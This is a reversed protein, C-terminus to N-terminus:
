VNCCNIYFDELKKSVEKIDFGAKIMEQSMDKREHEESYELVKNAWITASDKLSMQEVLSTICIENSIVDSIICPLGSAQAELVAGPLGEYISPFLFIDAAQLLDPVDNRSGLFLVDDIIELKKVKQRISEKNGGGVCVLKANKQKKKVLNFIDILFDHNKAYTFNGVHMIVFSDDEIKLEKRKNERINKDFKYKNIEIGNPWVQVLGNKFAKNGFLWRGAKESVAFMHTSYKKTSIKIINKMINKLNNSNLATRSHAIRVPVSAQKASKLLLGCWQNMHAHVVKYKHNAKLFDCFEKNINTLRSEISNNYYIKGGMNIIEDDFIGKELRFTYFDFQVRSRDINRYIDMLRSELGGRAMQTVVQLIRIPESM